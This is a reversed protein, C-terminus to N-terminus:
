AQEGPTLIRETIEAIMHLITDHIEQIRPTDKLPININYDSINRMKGGDRGTLTIVTLGLKKAEKIAEIINTSNGSTSIGIFIDENEGIAEIQRRFINEFGYDNGIATIISTDTTLAISPYGKREKAYRGVIEAAFHQSQAASGGNGAVLVKKGKKIREVILGAVKEITDLNEELAAFGVRHDDNIRNFIERIM